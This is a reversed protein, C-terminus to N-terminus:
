RLIRMPHIISSVVAIAFASDARVLPKGAILNDKATTADVEPASTAGAGPAETPWVRVTVRGPAPEWAPKQAYLNPSISALGALLLLHRM